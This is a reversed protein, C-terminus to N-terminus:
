TSKARRRSASVPQRCSARPRMEPFDVAGSNFFRALHGELDLVAERDSRAKSMACRSDFGWSTDNQFLIGTGTLATAWLLRVVAALQDPGGRYEPVTESFLFPKLPETAFHLRHYNFFERSPPRKGWTPTHLSVMDALPDRQFERGLRRDDNVMLPQPTRGRIFRLFHHQFGSWRSRDYWEGENFIEYVVNDLDGTARLLSECFRELAFQHKEADTWSPDFRTPMEEQPRGLRVYDSKKALWGGNEVNFPHGDFRTKTWGDHVTIVVAIGRSGASEVFQRLRKYYGANSTTLDFRGERRPWPWLVPADYGIREDRSQDVVGVYSWLLTANIGRKALADIYTDQDFNAGLEMWGQTLSDGVLLVPKGGRELWRSGRVVRVAGKATPAVNETTTTTDQEDARAAVRRPPDNPSSFLDDDQAPTATPAMLLIMVSLFPFRM